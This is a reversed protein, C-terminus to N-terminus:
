GTGEIVINFSFDTIGSITDSVTLTLTFPLVEGADIVAGERDWSLALFDGAEVPNWGSCSMHLTMQATGTNKIYATKNISDGPEPVGWDISSVVQTCELDWYVEVNIAKVSGTSSLTVYTTLLGSVALGGVLAFSVALLLIGYNLKFKM